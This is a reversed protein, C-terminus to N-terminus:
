VTLLHPAKLFTLWQADPWSLTLHKLWMLHWGSTINFTQTLRKPLFSLLKVLHITSVHHYLSPQAIFYMLFTTDGKPCAFRKKNKTEFTTKKYKVAQWSPAVDVDVRDTSQAFIWARTNSTLFCRTDFMQVIGKLCFSFRIVRTFVSFSDGNLLCATM